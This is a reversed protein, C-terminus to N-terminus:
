PAIGGRDQAASKGAGAGLMAEARRRTSAANHSLSMEVAHMSRLVSEDVVPVDALLDIHLRELLDDLVEELRGGVARLLGRGRRVHAGVGQAQATAGVWCSM